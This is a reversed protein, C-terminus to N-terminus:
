SEVRRQSVIQGIKDFAREIGDLRSQLVIRDAQRLEELEANTLHMKWEQDGLADTNDEAKMAKGATVNFLTRPNVPVPTVSIEQLDVDNIRIRGDPGTRKMFAGGVSFGKIDGRKVAAYIPESWSGAPPKSLRAKVHLGSQDIRGELVRGLSKSPDHHYLLVPNSQLYSKWGREFAGAEFIEHDRDFGTFDAAVGELILGQADESISNATAVMAKVHAVQHEYLGPVQAKFGAARARAKLATWAAVNACARARKAPAVSQLGAFNKVDGTACIYKVFNVAAPIAKERPVGRALMHCAASAIEEPLGGHKEIWNLKPSWNLNCRAM